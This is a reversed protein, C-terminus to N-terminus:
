RTPRQSEVYFRLCAAAADADGSLGAAVTKEVLTALHPQILRKALTKPQPTRGEPNGSAGKPFAHENGPAFRM